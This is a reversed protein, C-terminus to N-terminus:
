FLIFMIMNKFDFWDCLLTCWLDEAEQKADVKCTLIKRGVNVIM